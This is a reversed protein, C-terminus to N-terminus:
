QKGEKQELVRARYRNYAGVNETHTVWELNDARNNHNNHDIHNVEPKNGPNPIFAEAVLRHIYKMKTQGDKRLGVCYYGGNSWGTAGSQLLKKTVHSYVRGQNSVSYRGEYGAVDKWIESM